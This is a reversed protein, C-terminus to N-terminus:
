SQSIAVARAVNWKDPLLEDPNNQPYTSINQFVDRLYEFPDAALGKCTTSISTLVAAAHGGEDSGCFNWNKRGVAIGRLSRQTGNIDIEPDANICYRVPADSNSL